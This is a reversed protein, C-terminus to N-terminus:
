GPSRLAAVSAANARIAAWDGADIMKETAVWSGGVCAVNPLELYRGV